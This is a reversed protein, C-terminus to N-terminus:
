RSEEKDKDEDKDEDYIFALYKRLVKFDAESIETEDIPTHSYGNGFQYHGVEDLVGERENQSIEALRAEYKEQNNYTDENMTFVINYLTSYEGYIETISGIFYRM